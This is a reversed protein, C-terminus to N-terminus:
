LPYLIKITLEMVQSYWKAVLRVKLHALSGYILSLTYVWRCCIAMKGNWLSVLNWTRNQELAEMEEQM